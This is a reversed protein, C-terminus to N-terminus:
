CRKDHSQRKGDARGTGGDGLVAGVVRRAVVATLVAVVAFMVMPLVMMVLALVMMVAVAGVVAGVV